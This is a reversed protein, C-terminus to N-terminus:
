DLEVISILNVSTALGPPKEKEQRQREDCQQTHQTADENSHNQVLLETLVAPALSSAASTIEKL